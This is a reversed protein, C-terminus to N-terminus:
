DVVGGNLVFVYGSQSKTDDKDTEFGADGYCTVKLETEPKTGYVLVMDKTNRLYKLITKVVSVYMIFGIALAYPVRQMCKVENPTQAGQYKRYDPKVQLLVSGRKSNEMKFNKLIKDFYASQSLAILRKSKVDQLITVNNGMILIDDVYLVLFAVNSGSAKLYVCPEDPNQAFGIKKIKVDSRKNWSRSAQQNDKMSQMETNMVDLWKDSKPYSLAAKYNPPENLDGLELEEADIYFDYRDPAQSIRGSRRIPVEVSQPEVENPKVEDDRESTNKSPQTDDEQILELGVDSGSAKLLGHSGSAEQLTLSNEFFKKTPVMSLIRAVSELAYGWCSKPLTTINMMSRVMDLLTRNRRESVWNHSNIKLKM